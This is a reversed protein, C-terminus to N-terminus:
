IGFAYKIVDFFGVDESYKKIKEDFQKKLVDGSEPKFDKFLVGELPSIFELHPINEKRDIDLAGGGTVTIMWSGEELKRYISKGYRFRPDAWDIAQPMFERVKQERFIDNAQEPATGSDFVRRIFLRNGFLIYDVFVEKNINLEVPLEAIVGESNSLVVSCRKDAVKLETIITRALVENYRAKLQNFKEAAVNYEDVLTQYKATIEAVGAKYHRVMMKMKFFHFGVIFIIVLLGGWIIFSALSRLKGAVSWAKGETM